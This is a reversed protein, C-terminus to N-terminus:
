MTIASLKERSVYPTDSIRALGTTSTSQTGGFLIPLYISTSNCVGGLGYLSIPTRPQIESATMRALRAIM